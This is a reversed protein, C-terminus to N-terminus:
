APPLLLENALLAPVNSQHVNAPHRGNPVHRANCAPALRNILRSEAAEIRRKLELPTLASPRADIRCYTYSFRRLVDDPETREGLFVDRHALAFRLRRLPALNGADQHLKEPEAAALFGAVMPHGPGPDETLARLSRKSLHVRAGRVTIAAVHTWWRSVVVDGTAFAGGKGSGLYSGVYILRDDFCLGYLGAGAYDLRGGPATRDLLRKAGIRWNLFWVGARGRPSVEVCLVEDAAFTSTHVRL